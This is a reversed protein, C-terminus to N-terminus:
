VNIVGKIMNHSKYNLLEFDDFEFDTIDNPINKVFLKPYIYAVRTFMENAQDYLNNYIHINGVNWILEDPKMDCIAALMITLLSGTAVNWGGATVVDSSRQTMMCSLYKMDNEEKVNFQYNYLCPPLAADHFHEPEWLDIILRRSFPDNKLDKILETLQDYGQKDKSLKSYDTLCDIYRAGKHRFSFGYSHGMDGIPLRQLGRSDLYSRSTHPEWIRIKKESLIKSDTQGRLYLMLEEFIM